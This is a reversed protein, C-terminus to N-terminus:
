LEEMSRPMATRKQKRVATRYLLDNVTVAGGDQALDLLRQLVRATALADGAARHREDIEVGFYQTVSDLNRRKLGKVYRRTLDVTCLKPGELVLDRTLRLERSVFGWDFSVNHAVFVRGALAALVDDAIEAFTPQERVMEDTIQTISSTFEGVPREPNVLSEFVLQLTTKTAAVVAVEVIRDGNGASLGTTEVDVVAFVCDSLKPSDFTANAKAWMGNGLRCVRPDSGVLALVVRDAVIDPAGKLGLVDRAISGSNMAGSQLAEMVSDVLTGAQQARLGDRAM